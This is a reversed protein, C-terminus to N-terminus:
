TGPRFVGDRVEIAAGMDAELGQVISKRTQWHQRKGGLNESPSNLGRMIADSRYEMDLLVKVPVKFPLKTNWTYRSLEEDSIEATGNLYGLADALFPTIENINHSPWSGTLWNPKPWLFDRKGQGKATGDGKGHACPVSTPCDDRSCHKNSSRRPTRCRHKHSLFQWELWHKVSALRRQPKRPFKRPYEEFLQSTVRKNTKGEQFFVRHFCSYCQTQRTKPPPRPALDVLSQRPYARMPHSTCGGERTPSQGLQIPRGM